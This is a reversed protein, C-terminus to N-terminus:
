SSISVFDQQGGADLVKIFIGDVNSADGTHYIADLQTSGDVRSSFFWDIYFQGDPPVISLTAEANGRRTDVRYVIPGSPDVGAEYWWAELGEDPGIPRRSEIIFGTHEGTRFIIAKLGGEYVDLPSLAVQFGEKLGDRIDVCYIEESGLWGLMWRSWSNFTRSPGNNPSMASWYGWPGASLREPEVGERPSYWRDEEQYAVWDPLSFMHGVEHVYFGWENSRDRGPFADFTAGAGAWNTISGEESILHTEASWKFGEFSGHFPTEIGQPNPPFYVGDALVPIPTFTPIIVLLIDVGTFDMVEDAADVAAQALFVNNGSRQPQPYDEPSGPLRVWRDVTRTEFRLLGKSVLEYTEVFRQVEGFDHSLDQPDGEYSAWDVPIVAVQVVGSPELNNFVVPFGVNRIEWDLDKEHPDPIRCAEEDSEIPLALNVSAVVESSPKGESSDATTPPAVSNVPEVASESAAITTPAVSSVPEVAGESAASTADALGEASPGLEGGCSVLVSIVLILFPVSSPKM